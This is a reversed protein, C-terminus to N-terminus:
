AAPGIRKWNRKGTRNHKNKGPDHRHRAKRRHRRGAESEQELLLALSDSLPLAALLHM